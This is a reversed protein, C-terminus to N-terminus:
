EAYYTSMYVTGAGAGKVSVQTGVALVLKSTDVRNSSIDILVFSGAPLYEHDTTGGDYSVIVGATTDNVIKFIRVQHELPSGLATYPAAIAVSRLEEFALRSEAAPM